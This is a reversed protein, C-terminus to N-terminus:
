RGLWGLMLLGSAAIWSGTVRVAIRPWGMPLAVVHASLVVVLSFIVTVMGAITLALNGQSPITVGNSLGYMMGAAVAITNTGVGRLRIDLAVLAGVGAFSLTTLLPLASAANWYCGVISGVCWALPLGFIAYRAATAGQQGALLGIAVVVLLDAPTVFVHAIGDYFPGFGTEVLHARASLSMLSALAGIAIRLVRKM